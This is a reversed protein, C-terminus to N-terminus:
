LAIEGSSAAMKGAWLSNKCEKSRGCPPLAPNEAGHGPFPFGPLKKATPQLRPNALIRPILIL